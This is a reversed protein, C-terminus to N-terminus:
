LMSLGPSEFVDGLRNITKRQDTWWIQDVAMSFELELAKAANEPATATSVVRVNLYDSDSGLTPHTFSFIVPVSVNGWAYQSLLPIFDARAVSATMSFKGEDTEYKGPTRGDIRQSGMHSVTETVLKDGYSAKLVPFEYRGITVTVSTGDLELGNVRRFAM